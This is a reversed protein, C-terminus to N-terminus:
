VRLRWVEFAEQCLQERFKPHAIDILARARERLSKARLYACGYETVIYRHDNFTSSKM